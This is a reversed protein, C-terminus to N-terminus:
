FLFHSLLVILSRVVTFSKEVIFKTPLCCYPLCDPRLFSMLNYTPIGVENLAQWLPLMTNINLQFISPIEASIFVQWLQIFYSMISKYSAARCTNSNMRICCGKSYNLQMKLYTANRTEDRNSSCNPTENNGLFICWFAQSKSQSSLVLFSSYILDWQFLEMVPSTITHLHPHTVRTSSPSKHGRRPGKM